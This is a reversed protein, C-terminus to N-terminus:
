PASARHRPSTRSGRGVSASSTNEPSVAMVNDPFFSADHKNESYGFAYVVPAPFGHSVSPRAIDPGQGIVLMGDVQRTRMRRVYEQRLAPDDEADYVLTAMDHTSLASSAGILVPVSFTAPANDALIGITYSRGLAFSKALANPRFDLRAATDLIRTRTAPAVRGGGNLVKSATSLSVGSAAAVDSLKVSKAPM